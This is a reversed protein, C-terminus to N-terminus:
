LNFNIGFKAKWRYIEFDNERRREGTFERL